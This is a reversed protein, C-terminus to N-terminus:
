HVPAVTGQCNKNPTSSGFWIEDGTIFAEDNFAILMIAAFSPASSGGGGGGGGGGSRRPPPTTVPQLVSVQEGKPVKRGKPRAKHGTGTVSVNNWDFQHDLTFGERM